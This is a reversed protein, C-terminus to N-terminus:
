GWVPANDSSAASCIVSKARKRDVVAYFQSTYLPGPLEWSGDGHTWTTGVFEGSPVSPGSNVRYVTIHRQARCVRRNGAVKGRMGDPGVSQVTVRSGVRSKKAGASLAAPCLLLGAALCIAITKVFPRM